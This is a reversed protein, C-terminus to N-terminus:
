GAPESPRLSPSVAPLLALRPRSSELPCSLAGVSIYVVIGQHNPVPVAAAVSAIALQVPLSPFATTM